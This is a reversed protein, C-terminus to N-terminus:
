LENSGIPEALMEVAARVGHVRLSCSERRLAVAGSYEEEPCFAAISWPGADEMFGDVALLAVPQGTLSVRFSDLPISLGGGAAKIFAEKRVWSDFFAPVREADPVRLLEEYEAPCFFRRAIKELDTCPRHKEVDVGLDRNAAFAYAALNESCSM